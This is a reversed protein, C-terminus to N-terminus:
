HGQYDKLIEKENQGGLAERFLGIVIAAGILTCFIIFLTLGVSGCWERYEDHKM